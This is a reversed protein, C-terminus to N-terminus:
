FMWGSIVDWHTYTSKFDEKCLKVKSYSKDATKMPPISIVTCLADIEAIDRNFRREAFLQFGEWRFNFLSNVILNTNKPYPLKGFSLPIYIQNLDM